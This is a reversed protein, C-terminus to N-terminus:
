NVALMQKLKAIEVAYQSASEFQETELANIRAKQQEIDIEFGIKEEEWDAIGASQPRQNELEQRLQTITEDQDEVRRRLENVIDPDGEGM